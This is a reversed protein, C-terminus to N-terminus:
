GLLKGLLKESHYDPSTRFHDYKSQSILLKRKAM